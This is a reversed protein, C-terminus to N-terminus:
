AHNVEFRTTVGAWDLTTAAKGTVRVRGTSTSNDITADYSADSEDTFTTEVTGATVTGGDRKFKIRRIYAATESGDSKDACIEATALTVAEDLITWTYLSTVTGDTTQVSSINSYLKGRANGTAQIDTASFVPTGSITPSDITPSTGFVLAGSGTEGTVASALNASSPTGLFTAVGSGLSTLGTGGKTDPLATTLASALNAGSPTGLFTAVGSGLATLGTGGKSDPLATTLASALNAGSPTGLWTAVGTGLATLGTGGKTDPLATTLASALNAGSPTGLWTAVGSGLSTIGTGGNAVPLTGSVDSALRVTLTNSAGSITKNTLAQSDTDGVIAGSPATVFSFTGAANKPIGTSGSVDAGFGGNAESIPVTISSSAMSASIVAPAIHVSGDAEAWGFVDDSGSPTVRELVGTSSVRVWSASGAALGSISASILGAVQMVVARNSSDGATLCIGASRKTGRNATTAALYTDTTTDYVLCTGAAVTSTTASLTANWVIDYQAM